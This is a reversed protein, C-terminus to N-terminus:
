ILNVITARITSNNIWIGTRSQVTFMCDQWADASILYSEEAGMCFSVTKLTKGLITFCISCEHLHIIFTSLGKEWLM